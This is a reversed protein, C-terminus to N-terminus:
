PSVVLRYFRQSSSQVGNTDSLTIPSGTGVIPAGLNVWQPQSLNTTYQVQYNLGSAATWALDFSNSEPVASRFGVTPIHMVSIDDLGFGSFANEAAFQLVTSAGRAAVIFQLNTWSFVPPNVVNYVTAGNWKVMFQQGAGSGNNDLWFSLLYNQGSATPLSQSLTGLSDSGLWVGYTGSHAVDPGTTVYNYVTDGGLTWDTFDGTEFGGNRVVSEGISVGFSENESVHTSWNTFVLNTAFTGTGLIDVAASFSVVVNTAAYAALVGNSPVAALWNGAANIVSWTLASSSTNTLVFVESAPTFPGGFPGSANFGTSPTIALSDFALSFVLGDGTQNAGDYQNGGFEATGYFMGDNAQILTGQPNAGNTGNFWFLTTLAGDATTQFVTGEGGVGGQSTTGYLNGDAGWALGGVPVAGDQYNFSHPATLTGDPTLHYVTGWGGNTGGASAAGYFSGDAAQVLGNSPYAGHLSDFSVLSAVVGNTDLGFITGLNNSGGLATAGYLQGDAAPTLPGVPYAGDTSQFSWLPTFVGNTSLSFVTGFGNSGGTSAVGYLNGDDAQVLSGVPNGGDVGGQFTHLASFVGAPNLRFLTGFPSGAGPSSAGYFNGDGAQVLGALPAAGDAGNTFSYLTASAGYPSLRFLSGFGESGGDVTSGYFNGDAGQIVGAYPNFSGGNTGTFSLVYRLTAAPPGPPLVTLLAPSSTVSGLSNSIVVAYTGADDTAVPALTLLPTSSGSLNGGDVLNTNNELWQYSLLGDGTAQVSFAVTTGVLVSQSEPQSVIFPASNNVQLVAGVSTLTGYRNSVVVSYTAADATSINTLALIRANSGSVNGADVLYAGSRLWQYSVPLAGFTAVSFSVNDGAFAAQNRPPETIQLAGDLTLRFITGFGDAGGFLTTGYLRGDTAQILTCEPTGGQYGDFDVLKSLVGERSIRFITGLGYVGGGETAGYWNGDSALLLGGYCNSGEAGGTFSYLSSFTGQPTLKFVTGANDAGGAYTTGYLSGDADLALGATLNAGNTNGFSFLATLTGAPTIKFISGFGGQSGGSQATGYFNGDAAQVIASAPYAGDELNFTGLATLSGAPTWRFVTGYGQANAWVSGYRYAGGMSCTGYFNGDKGQVLAGCPAAGSSAPNLSYGTTAGSTTMRFVTGETAGDDNATGYLAGDTGQILGGYPVAGDTGNAFAHLLSITGNTSWRFVTGWEQSGGGRATGYFSGDRAQLLGAFPGVGYANTTFSYLTELAAGPATVVPVNLAAVTSTASGFGNTIVVSYSGANVVTTKPVNLTCTASDYYVAGPLNTGNFLWFYWLPPDGAAAVTFSAAGGPLVTQNSPQTVIVPPQGTLVTLSAWASTVSGAPNTVIVSYKGGNPFSVNGITLANTASGSIGGGDTLNTVLSGNNFQWQCALLANAATGVAFTASMGEVLTLNAPQSTIVPPGAVALSVQRTVVSQDSLNTFFLNATYGGAALTGSPPNPAVTVVTAPGGAVLTGYSPSVTVWPVDQGAVWALSGVQNTLTFALTAPSVAGGVLNTFLLPSVPTIGLRQPFALAHILNGGRPTGWGTCLDYGPVAPFFVPGAPSADNNGVTIDHFCNTYDSSQGLAYLPPNLFGVAPEGHDAAEQNILATFAAWLPAAFSTGWWETITLGNWVVVFNEAVMAVDPFNRRTTSGRNASMDLGAQWTPIPYSTSSGGSSGVGLSGNWNQLHGINWVRESDYAAGDGSMALSTGGVSTLYPDDAPWIYPTVPDSNWSDGDGSAQLFSQGQLAMQQFLRDSTSSVTGLWSSSFQKIEPHAAMSSLIDNWNGAQGADFIVVKALGPAMAVVMEVDLDAEGEGGWTGDPMGSAGDLLLHDMPVHPLGCMDEYATVDATSFPAFEVLGVIQGSGTLAVGPAYANRFDDGLFNGSPGSGGDLSPLGQAVRRRLASRPLAYNNLGGVEVVALGAEVSPEVDPAYFTRPETPHQYVRLKVRFASEIGSVPGAVDLLVRNPHTATVELGHRVAFRKVAEYDEIAPGFRETFQELTLYHRFQPSAPDYMDQLLRELDNTNRLPLGIALRLRNTAALRGTAQLNLKAVAPPVHGPLVQRDAARASAGLLAILILSGLTTKLRQLM